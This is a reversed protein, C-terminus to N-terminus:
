IWALLNAKEQLLEKELELSKPKLQKTRESQQSKNILISPEFDFLRTDKQLKNNKYSVRNIFFTM